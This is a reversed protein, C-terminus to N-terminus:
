PVDVATTSSAARPRSMVLVTRSSGPTVTGEEASNSTGYVGTQLARAPADAFQGWVMVHGPTLRAAAIVSGGLKRRAARIQQDLDASHGRVAESM